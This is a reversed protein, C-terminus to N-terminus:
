DQSPNGAAGDMSCLGDEAGMVRMEDSLPGQDVIVLGEDDISEGEEASSSSQREPPQTTKKFGM